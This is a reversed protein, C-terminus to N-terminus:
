TMHVFFNVILTSSTYPRSKTANKIALKKFWPTIEYLDMIPLKGLRLQYKLIKSLQMEYFAECPIM